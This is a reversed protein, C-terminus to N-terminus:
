VVEGGGQFNEGTCAQEREVVFGSSCMGVAPDFRTAVTADWFSNVAFRGNNTLNAYLWGKVPLHFFEERHEDQILSSWLVFAAPCQKFIHDLTEREAGCISCQADLTLHRCCREENLLIKEHSLLWLFVKIRSLGKFDYITKWIPGLPGSQVGLRSWYASRVQNNGNSTHIWGRTMGSRLAIGQDLSGSYGRVLVRMQSISAEAIGRCEGFDSHNTQLARDIGRIRACLDKKRAGIHGFEEGLKHVLVDARNKIIRMEMVVSIKTSLSRVFNKFHRRFEAIEAGGNFGKFLLADVHNNPPNLPGLDDEVLPLAEHVGNQVTQNALSDLGAGDLRVRGNHKRGSDRDAVSLALHSRSGALVKRSAKESITGDNLSVIEMSDSRNADGSGRGPNLSHYATSASGDQLRSLRVVDDVEQTDDHLM